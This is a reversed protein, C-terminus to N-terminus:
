YLKVEQHHARRQEFCISSQLLRIIFYLFQADLQANVLTIGIPVTLLIYFESNLNRKIKEMCATTDKQQRKWIDTSRWRKQAQIKFVIILIFSKGYILTRVFLSVYKCSFAILVTRVMKCSCSNFLVALRCRLAAATLVSAHAHIHRVASWENLVSSPAGKCLVHLHLQLTPPPSM